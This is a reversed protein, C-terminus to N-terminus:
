GGNQTCTKLKKRFFLKIEYAPFLDWCHMVKEEERREGTKVGPDM